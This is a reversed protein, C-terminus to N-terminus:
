AFCFCKKVQTSPPCGTQCRGGQEPDPCIANCQADTTCTVNTCGFGVTSCPACNTTVGGCQVYGAQGPCAADIGTCSGSVSTCTVATGNKCTAHASCSRFIPEPVMLDGLDGPLSSAPSCEAATPTSAPLLFPAAAEAQAALASSANGALVLALVVAPVFSRQSM